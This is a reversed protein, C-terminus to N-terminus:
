AYPFKKLPLMGRLARPERAPHAGYRVRSAHKPLTVLAGLNSVVCPTRIKGCQQAFTSLSSHLSGPTPTRPRPLSTARFAPAQRVSVASPQGSVASPQGSVASQQRNRM